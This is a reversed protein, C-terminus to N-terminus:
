LTDQISGSDLSCKSPVKQNVDDDYNCHLSGVPNYQSDVGRSCIAGVKFYILEKYHQLVVHTVFPQIVAMAWDHVKKLSKSIALEKLYQRGTKCKSQHIWHHDKVSSLAEKMHRDGSEFYEV